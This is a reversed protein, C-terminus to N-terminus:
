SAETWHTPTWKRSDPWGDSGGRKVMQKREHFNPKRMPSAPALCEDGGSFKIRIMRGDAPMTDIPFWETM